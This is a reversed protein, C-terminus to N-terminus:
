KRSAIAAVALLVVISIGIITVMVKFGLWWWVFLLAGVLIVLGVGAASNDSDEKM